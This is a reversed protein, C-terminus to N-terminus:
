FFLSLYKRLQMIARSLFVRSSLPSINLKGAIEKHSFGNLHSLQFITKLQPPLQDIASQLKGSLEKRELTELPTNEPQDFYALLADRNSEKFVKTRLYDHVLNHSVTFLFAQINNVAALKRRNNWLRVFIDQALDEAMEPSKTLRLANSYVFKWQKDFLYQFAQKDGRAIKQLLEQENHVSENFLLQRILRGFYM